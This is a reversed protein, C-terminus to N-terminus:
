GAYGIFLDYAIHTGVVIGFGRVVFIWAFAVGALWRFAFVYLTFPDGHPGVHHAISFAAASGTIALTGALLEPAQVIRLIWYLLPLLALRFVAEEYLGAGLFGLIPLLTADLGPFFPSASLMIPNQDLWGFGRDVLRSLGILAIGLVVSEIAMGLLWSPRARWAWPGSALLWVTLIGVVAWPLLSSEGLGVSKAVEGIWHDVGTRASIAGAGFQRVGVEYAVILPVVFLLNVLPQRTQRWYSDREDDGFEDLYRDRRGGRGTTLRRM